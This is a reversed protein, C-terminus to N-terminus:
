RIVNVIGVKEKRRLNGDPHEISYYIKYVYTDIQVARSKYKGDWDNYMSSSEYILIGWRNFILMKYDYINHGKANFTDNLGDGNPTFSNPVELFSPCYDTLEIKDVISCKGVSIKVIFTGANTVEIDTTTEGTGWLYNYGSSTGASIMIPRDLENFCYPQNGLSQDIASTPLALVSVDISDTGSCGSERVTVAYTGTQNVTVTQTKVGTSWLIDLGTNGANITYSEGECLVTDRGLNVEPIPIFTVTVDDTGICGDVTKATLNYIGDSTPTITSTTAGTSWLYTQGIQANADLVTIEKGACENRNSGLDPVPNSNVTVLIDINSMCGRDSTVEVNYTEGTSVSIEPTIAGTSWNYTYSSGLNEGIVANEGDCIPVSVPTLIPNPHVFIEISSDGKCGLGNDVHLDYTGAKTVFITETTGSGANSWNFNYGGSTKFPTALLASDGECLHIDPSAVINITLNMDDIISDQDRGVCGYKDKVDVWVSEEATTSYVSGTSGDHWVYTFPSNGNNFLSIDMSISSNPCKTLTSLVSPSPELIVILDVTDLGKCGKADTVELTYTGETNKSITQSAEGSSWSYSNYVGADFVTNLAKSCMTIDLGLDPKPLPNVVLLVTDYGICNNADTFIVSYEGALDKDISKTNEGSNWLYTNYSANVDFTVAADGFCIVEDPISVMPMAHVTLHMVDQNVCGNTDTVIVDFDSDTHVSITQITEATSWLYTASTNTADLVISDALECISIDDGLDVIPLLNVKLVVTDSDSCGNNDTIEVWYETDIVTSINQTTAGTNWLYSMGAVTNKADFLVSSDGICIATDNGLDVVPLLNVKLVVTDSDSCGNNDTIEVAYIGASDRQITQTTETAGFWSYTSGINQADFTVYPDNECIEQDLGLDVTPRINVILNISDTGKCGNGNTVEVGFYGAVNYSITPSTEGNQIWFYASWVGADFVVKPDGACIATDLGLNPIPLTDHFLDVADTGKCGNSNTVELTYESPTNTSISQTIDGNPTWAYADWVGADFDIAADGICITSDIGLDPIPLSDVTIYISDYCTQGADTVTMLVKYVGFRSSLNTVDFVTDTLGNIILGDAAPSSPFSDITWIGPQSSVEVLSDLLYDNGVCFRPSNDKLESKCSPCFYVDIWITDNVDCYEFIIEHKGIGAIQPNFTGIKDDTIGKGSYKHRQYLTDEASYGSCVWYTHLDVASATDCFPGVEVIDPEEAPPIYITPLGRSTNGVLNTASTLVAGSNLNGSFRVLNNGGLSSRYLNGDAGIEIASHGTGGGAILTASAEVTADVGSTIDLTYVSGVNDSYIVRSNDPSFTVDYPFANTPSSKSEITMKGNKKNFDAVYISNDPWGSPHASVFQTGDWNFSVGGREENGSCNAFGGSIVPSTALDIGDCKLLWTYVDNTGSAQCAIWIDVGNEHFTASLGETTRIGGLRTIGQKLAGNEDMVAYNFGLTGSLADDTTFIYYDSPSLPHRVTICGQAASGRNLTGGSENGELLGAYTKNGNKDIVDRGNTLFILNGQDDSAASVGEYAQLPKSANGMPTFVGTTFNYVNGSFVNTAFFWNNHGPWEWPNRSNSICTEQAYNPSTLLTFIVLTFFRLLKM